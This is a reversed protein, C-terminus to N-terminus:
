HFFVISNRASMYLRQLSLTVTGSPALEPDPDQVPRHAGRTLRFLHASFFFYHQFEAPQHLSPCASSTM